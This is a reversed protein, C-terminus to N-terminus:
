EPGHAPTSTVRNAHTGLGTFVSMSCDRLVPMLVGYDSLLNYAFREDPSMMSICMTLSAFRRDHFQCLDPRLSHHDVSLRRQQRLQTSLEAINGVRWKRFNRRDSCISPDIGFLRRRWSITHFFSLLIFEIRKLGFLLIFQTRRDSTFCDFVANIHPEQITSEYGSDSARDSM